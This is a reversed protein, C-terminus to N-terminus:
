NQKKKKNEKLAKEAKELLAEVTDKKQDFVAVGFSFTLSYQMQDFDKNYVLNKSKGSINKMKEIAEEASYPLILIFEDGLRFRSLFADIPLEDKLFQVFDVLVRDGLAYSHDNFRKFGDIDLIAISFPPLNKKNANIVKRLKRQFGRYNPISTMEDTESLVFYHRIKIALIVFIVLLAVGAPIFYFFHSCSM